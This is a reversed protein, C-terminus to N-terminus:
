EPPTVGSCTISHRSSSEFRGREARNAAPPARSDTDRISPGPRRERGFRRNIRSSDTNSCASGLHTATFGRSKSICHPSRSRWSTTAMRSAYKWGLLTGALTIPSSPLAIGWCCCCTFPWHLELHHVLGSIPVHPRDRLRHHLHLELRHVSIPLSAQFEDEVDARSDLCVGRPVAISVADVVEIEHPRVGAQVDDAFRHDLRPQFRGGILALLQDLVKETISRWHFVHGAHTLQRAPM